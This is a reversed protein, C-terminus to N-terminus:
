SGRNEKQKAIEILVDTIHKPVQNVKFTPNCLGLSIRNTENDINAFILMYDGKAFAKGWNETDSYHYIKVEGSIDGKYHREISFITVRDPRLDTLNKEDIEDDNLNESYLYKGKFIVDYYDNIEIGDPFRCSLANAASHGFFTFFLIVCIIARM